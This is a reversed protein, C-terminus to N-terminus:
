AGASREPAVTLAETRIEHGTGTEPTLAFVAARDLPASIPSPGAGLRVHRAVAFANLFVAAIARGASNAVFAYGPYGTGPKRACASAAMSVAAVPGAALSGKLFARRSWM